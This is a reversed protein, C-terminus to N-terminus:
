QKFKMFLSIWNSWNNRKYRSRGIFNGFFKNIYNRFVGIKKDLNAMFEIFSTFLILFNFSGVLALNIENLTVFKNGLIGISFVIKIISFKNVLFLVGKM